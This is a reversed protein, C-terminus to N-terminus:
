LLRNKGSRITRLKPVNRNPQLPLSPVRSIDVQQSQYQEDEGGGPGRKRWTQCQALHFSARFCDTLYILAQICSEDLPWLLQRRIDQRPEPQVLGAATSNSSSCGRGGNWRGNTGRGMAFDDNRARNEPQGQREPEDTSPTEGSVSKSDFDNEVVLVAATRNGRTRMSAMPYSAEDCDLSGCHPIATSTWSQLYRSLVKKSSFIFQTHSDVYFFAGHVAISRLMHSLLRVPGKWQLMSSWFSSLGWAPGNRKM